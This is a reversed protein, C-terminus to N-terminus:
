KQVRVNLLDFCSASHQFGEVKANLGIFNYMSFLPLCPYDEKILKQAQSYLSIREDTDTIVRARNLLDDVEANVYGNLNYSGTSLFIAEIFLVPETNDQSLRLLFTSFETKALMKETFSVREQINLKVDVGVQKFYNQVAEMVMAEPDRQYLNLEVKLTEGNKDLLGDGDSDTWGSAAFHSLALDTDYTYPITDPEYAWSMSPLSGDAKTTLDKILTERITDYDICHALGKRINIDQYQDFNYNFFIWAVNYDDARQLTIKDSEDFRSLETQPVNILFDINGQELEVMATMADDIQRFTVYKTAPAGLYFSENAELAVREGQVWEKLMFPGSGVAHSTFEDGWQELAAPQAILTPNVLLCKDIFAAFPENLKFVVTTEDPCTIEEVAALDAARPSATEPDRIRDYNYKVESALVPTGDHWLADSRLHFTWETGDANPEWSEALRPVINGDHDYRVLHDFILYGIRSTDVGSLYAPDFNTIEGSMQIVIEDKYEVGDGPENSPANGGDTPSQPPTETPGCAALGLLLLVAMLACLLRKKM